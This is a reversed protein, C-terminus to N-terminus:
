FRTTQSIIYITKLKCITSYTALSLEVNIISYKISPITNKWAKKREYGKM